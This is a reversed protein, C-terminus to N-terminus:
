SDFERTQGVKLKRLLPIIVPGAAASIVFSVIVPVAVSFDMM